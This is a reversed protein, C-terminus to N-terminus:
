RKLAQELARCKEEGVAARIKPLLAVLDQYGSAAEVALNLRFGRLGLGATVQTAILYARQYLEADSHGPNDGTATTAQATPTASLPPETATNEPRLAIFGLELMHDFDAQTIEMGSTASMVEQATRKGDILIFAARQRPALAASREKFATQGALTKLYIAMVSWDIWHAPWFRGAADRSADPEDPGRGHQRSRFRM